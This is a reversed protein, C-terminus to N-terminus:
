RGAAGPAAARDGLDAPAAVAGVGGLVPAAGALVDDGECEDRGLADLAGLRHVEPPEALGGGVRGLRCGGLEVREGLAQERGEGRLGDADAVDEGM